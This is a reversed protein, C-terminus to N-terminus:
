AILCEQNMTKAAIDPSFRRVSLLRSSAALKSVSRPVKIWLPFHLEVIAILASDTANTWDEKWLREIVSTQLDVSSEAHKPAAISAAINNAMIAIAASGSSPTVNKGVAFGKVSFM